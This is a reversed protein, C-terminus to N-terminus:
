SYEQLQPCLLSGFGLWDEKSRGIKPEKNKEFAAIVLIKAVYLSKMVDM